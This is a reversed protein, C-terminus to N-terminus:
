DTCLYPVGNWALQPMENLKNMYVYITQYDGWIGSDPKRTCLTLHYFGPEVLITQEDLCETTWDMLNFLDVACLKGDKLEIGLRIVVPYDSCLEESPYGERFKLTFDGGTGTCFGVVDGKKLHAAVDEPNQYETSFFDIGEPIEKNTEPSFFVIGMGDIILDMDKEIM